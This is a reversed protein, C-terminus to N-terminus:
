LTPKNYPNWRDMELAPMKGEAKWKRRWAELDRHMEDWNTKEGKGYYELEDDDSEDGNVEVRSSAAAAAAAALLAERARAIRDVAEVGVCLSVDLRGLGEERAEANGPDSSGAMTALAALGLYAHLVDPPDGPHKAFGGILHQTKELIFKRAPERNILAGEGLIGLAGSVWWAYCSDAVKNLRGNFGAIQTDPADLSLTSLDPLAHNPDDDEDENDSGRDPELYAFQRCALFHVLAPISPIGARLYRKPEQSANPNAADLMSLAATACYAYGAHSEHTSSEAVGGDFTQGQRIYAVLADVDFDLDEDDAGRVGGGLAWRITAALYCYRMDKGGGVYGDETIIEGFSGDERQLRKLWRLTRIRDVGDFAKSGDGDALIGLLLLAFYTAAINANDPDNAVDVEREFDWRSTFKPPLVHNPSGCFGGHPHQLSLIWPRLRARDEPTILSAKLPDTPPASYSSASSLLDLAALIFFGLALRASDNSTYHHPLISRFCRQWYRIHRATDLPPEIPPSM